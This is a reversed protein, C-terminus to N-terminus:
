GASNRAELTLNNSAGVTGSGVVTFTFADNAAGSYSGGVTPTATGTIAQSDPATSLRGAFDFGFGPQALLTLKGTQSDAIAQLRPIASIATALAQLSQTSPDVNVQHLTRQGTALDTVSISLTGARPPFALGAQALPVTTASVARQGYLVTSPGSLGLGRA